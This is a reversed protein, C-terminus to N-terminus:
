MKLRVIFGRRYRSNSVDIELNKYGCFVEGVFSVFAMHGMETASGDSDERAM